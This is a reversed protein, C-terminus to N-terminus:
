ADEGGATVIEFASVDGSFATLDDFPEDFAEVQPLGTADAGDATTDDATSESASAASSFAALGAVGSAAKM